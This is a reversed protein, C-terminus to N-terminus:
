SDCAVAALEDLADFEAGRERQEKAQAEKQYKYIYEHVAAGVEDLGEVCARRIMREKVTKQPTKKKIEVEVDRFVRCAQLVIALREACGGGVKGLEKGVVRASSSVHVTSSLMKKTCCMYCKGYEKPQKAGFPTVHVRETKATAVVNRAREINNELSNGFHFISQKDFVLQELQYWIHRSEGKQAAEEVATEKDRVVRCSSARQSKERALLSAVDIAESFEESDAMPEDDPVTFNDNMDYQNARAPEGEEEDEEDDSDGVSESEDDSALRRARERVM